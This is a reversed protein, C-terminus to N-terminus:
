LFDPTRVKKAYNKMNNTDTENESDSVLVEQFRRKCSKKRVKKEVVRLEEDQEQEEEQEKQNEEEEESSEM